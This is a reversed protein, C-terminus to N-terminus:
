RIGPVIKGEQEHSVSESLVCDVLKFLDNSRVRGFRAGVKSQAVNVGLFQMLESNATQEILEDKTM